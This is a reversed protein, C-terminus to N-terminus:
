LKVFEIVWVWPNDSWACGKRKGNISDWGHAWAEILAPDRHASEGLRQCTTEDVGEARIDAESIEQLREVRISKIGLTIRSAKRPMRLGSIWPSAEDGNKRLKQGGDGDVAMPTPDTAAYWYGDYYGNPGPPDIFRSCWTERVWLRDQPPELPLQPRGYPCRLDIMHKGFDTFRYQYDSEPMASVCVIGAPLGKVVRRTQTKRGELIARVM